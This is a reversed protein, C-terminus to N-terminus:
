RYLSDILSRYREELPRRRVKLTPTLTGDEPSWEDPLVRWRKLQEHRPLHQNREQIAEDLTLALQPHGILARIHAQREAGLTQAAGPPLIGRRIAWALAEEPDLTLLAVLYSRREGSVLASAVLPISQLVQEIRQPAVKKGTSLVILEKKRDTIRVYGGPLLEGLDGTRFFGEDDFAASTAAPDRYYGQFVGPGRVLLEGDPALKVETGALPRGVTGFRCAGPLNLTAPAATETLGWGELILLDLAFFFELLQPDIPAGGSTLLRISGGFLRRKLPEIAVERAVRWALADRVSLPRGALRADATRRGVELAWAFIRRRSPPASAIRETVRAHLKEWLRPVSIQITPAVERVEELVAEPRTAYYHCARSYIGGYTAVRQLAHALPLFTLSRDRAERPLADSAARATYCLNGHSLLAGKPQGTTGSTYIVTALDGPRLARWRAEVRAPGEPLGEGLAALAELELLGADRAGDPLPDLCITDRLSTLDARLGLVKSLQTGAVFVARCEAHRLQYAVEAASLTPYIGVSVGGAHLIALDVLPWEWRTEAVLGVRDGPELGLAILGAAFAEVRARGRAASTGVWEGGVKHFSDLAGPQERARQQFLAPLSAPVWLGGLEVLESLGSALAATM